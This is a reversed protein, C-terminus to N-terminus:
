EVRGPNRIAGDIVFHAIHIGQPTLERAMSQALGRLAFKGMAFLASLQYGKVSASAGKILIPGHGKHAFRDAQENEVLLGGFADVMIARQVCSLVLAAVPGPARARANYVVVDPACTAAEVATFLRAVQDAEVADCVFAKAGIEACLPALKASDRAALGVQ